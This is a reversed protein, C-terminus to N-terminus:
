DGSPIGTTWEIVETDVNTLGLHETDRPTRPFRRAADGAPDFIGRIENLLNM